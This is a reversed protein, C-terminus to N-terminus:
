NDKDMLLKRAEEAAKTDPFKAVIDQLRERGREKRGDKLIEKALRLKTAAVHEPDDPPPDAADSNKAKVPPTAKKVTKKTTDVAAKSNTKAPEEGLAYGREKGQKVTIVGDYADGQRSGVVYGCEIKKFMGDLVDALTQKKAKYSIKLNRSVGGATDIRIALAPVKEKLELVVDQLTTDNFDVDIVTALKKRTEAAKPTDDARAAAGAPFSGLCILL